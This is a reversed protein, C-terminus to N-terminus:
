FPGRPVRGSHQRAASCVSEPTRQRCLRLGSACRSMRAASCTRRQFVGIKTPAGIGAGASRALAHADVDAEEKQAGIASIERAVRFRLSPM